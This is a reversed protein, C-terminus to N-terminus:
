GIGREGTLLGDGGFGAHRDDSSSRERTDKRIVRNRGSAKVRRGRGNVVLPDRREGIGAQIRLIAGLDATLALPGILEREAQIVLEGIRLLEAGVIVKLVVVRAIRKRRKLRGSRIDWSKSRKELRAGLLPIQAM